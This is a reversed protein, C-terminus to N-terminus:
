EPTCEWMPNGTSWQLIHEKQRGGDPESLIDMNGGGVGGEGDEKRGDRGGEKGGERWHEMQPPTMGGM